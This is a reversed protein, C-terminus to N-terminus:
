SMSRIRQSTFFFKVSQMLILWTLTAVKDKRFLLLAEEMLPVSKQEELKFQSHMDANELEDEEEEIERRVCQEERKREVEFRRAKSNSSASSGGFDSGELLLGGELFGSHVLPARLKGSGVGPVVM